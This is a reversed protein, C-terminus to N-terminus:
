HLAPNEKLNPSLQAHLQMLMSVEPVTLIRRTYLLAEWTAFEILGTDDWQDDDM